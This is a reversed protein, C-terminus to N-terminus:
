TTKLIKTHFRVSFVNSIIVAAFSLQKKETYYAHYVIYRNPILIVFAYQFYAFFFSFTFKRPPPRTYSFSRRCISLETQTCRRGTVHTGISFLVNVILNRKLNIRKNKKGNFYIKKWRFRRVCTTM